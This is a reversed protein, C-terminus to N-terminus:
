EKAGAAKLLKVIGTKGYIMEGLEAYHLVARGNRDKANVDAGNDILLRAIEINGAKAADMLPTIGTAEDRANPDAGKELLSEVDACTGNQAHFIIDDAYKEANTAKYNLPAASKGAVAAQAANPKGMPGWVFAQMPVVICLGVIAGTILGTKTLKNWEQDDTINKAARFIMNKPKTRGGNLSKKQKESLMVM